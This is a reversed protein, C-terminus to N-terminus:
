GARAPWEFGGASADDGGRTGDSRWLERGYVGDGASFYVLNGVATIERPESALTATNIDKVSTALDSAASSITQPLVTSPALGILLGLLCLFRIVSLYQKLM